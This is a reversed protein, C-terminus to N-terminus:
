KRKGIVKAPNGAIILNDEPFSKTVISGAGITCNNGIKVSPLIVVNTGIWVNDGIIIPEIKISKLNEEFDHNASIIKVGPAFLFNKGLKIGNIAQFYCSGSIAFSALTTIDNNLEINKESITSTFNISFNLKSHRMFLRQFIFNIFWLKAGIKNVLTLKFSLRKNKKLQQKILNIM